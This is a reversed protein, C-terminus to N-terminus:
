STTSSPRRPGRPMPTSSASPPAAWGSTSSTSAPPSSSRRSRRASRASSRRRSRGGAASPPRPARPTLLPRSPATLIAAAGCTRPAAATRVVATQADGRDRPAAEPLGETDDGDVVGGFRAARGRGPRLLRARAGVRGRRLHLGRPGGRGAARQAAHLRRRSQVNQRAGGAGGRAVVAQRRRRGATGGGRAGGGGRPPPRPPPAAAPPPEGRRARGKQKRSSFLSAVKRRSPSSDRRPASKAPTTAAPPPAVFTGGRPPPAETVTSLTTTAPAPARARAVAPAESSVRLLPVEKAATGVVAFERMGLEVIAGRHLSSRRMVEVGGLEIRLADATGGVARLQVTVREVSFAAVAHVYGAEKGALLTATGTKKSSVTSALEEAQKDDLGLNAGKKHQRGGIRGFIGSREKKKKGEDGGGGTERAKIVGLLRWWALLQAGLSDELKLLEGRAAASLHTRAKGDPGLEDVDDVEDAPSARVMQGILSMYHVKQELMVLPPPPRKVGLQTAVARGAAQWHARASAGRRPRGLKPPKHLLYAAHLKHRKQAVSLQILAALQHDSAAVTLPPVALTLHSLPQGGEGGSHRMVGAIRVPPVLWADAATRGRLAAEEARMRGIVAEQKQFFAAPPAKAKAGSTADDESALAEVSHTSCYAGTEDVLIETVDTSADADGGGDRKVTMSRLLLGMAFGGADGAFHEYRVHVNSIKVKVNADLVQGKLKEMLGGKKKEGAARQQRQVIAKTAAIIAEEKARRLEELDPERENPQLLIVLEDVIVEVFGSSFHLWPVHIEVNKCHVLRAVVPLHKAALKKTIEEPRAYLNKIMINGDKVVIDSYKTGGHEGMALVTKLKKTVVDDILNNIMYM